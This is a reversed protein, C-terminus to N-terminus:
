KTKLTGAGFVQNFSNVGFIAGDAETALGTLVVTVDHGELSGTVEVLRDAGNTNKLDISTGADFVLEDGATFNKINYTYTSTPHLEFVVDDASADYPEANGADIPVQHKAGGTIPPPQVNGGGGDSGGGGCGSVMLMGAILGTVGLVKMSNGM